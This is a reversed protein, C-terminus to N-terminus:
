PRRTAPLTSAPSLARRRRPSPSRNGTPERRTSRSSHLHRGALNTRQQGPRELYLEPHRRQACDNRYLGDHRGCQHDHRQRHGANDDHPEMLSPHEDREVTHSSNGSITVNSGVLQMASTAETTQQMSILTQMNTNMDIQQEVSSFEALQQTFSETDMPDLPDQNQLQTTLLQLFTDFNGAIQQSAASGAAGAATTSSSTTSGAAAANAAQSAANSVTSM